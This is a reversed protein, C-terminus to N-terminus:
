DNLAEHQEQKKANSKEKALAKGQKFENRIQRSFFLNAFLIAMIFLFIWPGYRTYFLAGALESAHSPDLYNERSEIIEVRKDVIMILKYQQYSLYTYIIAAIVRGYNRRRYLGICGAILVMATLLVIGPRVHGHNWATVSAICVLLTMVILLIQTLLISLHFQKYPLPKVTTTSEYLEMM